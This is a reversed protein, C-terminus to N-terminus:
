KIGEKIWEISSAVSTVQSSDAQETWSIGDSSGCRPCFIIETGTWTGMYDIISFIYGCNSCNYIRREM